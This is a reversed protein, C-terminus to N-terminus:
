PNFQSDGNVPCRPPHEQPSGDILLPTFEEHASATSGHSGPSLVRANQPQLPFNSGAKRFYNRQDQHSLTVVLCPSHQPASRWGQQWPCFLRITTWVALESLGQNGVDAGSVRENKWWLVNASRGKVCWFTGASVWDCPSLVVWGGECGLYRMPKSQFNMLGLKGSCLEFCGAESIEPLPSLADM